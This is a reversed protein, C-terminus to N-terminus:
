RSRGGFQDPSQILRHRAHTRRTSHKRNIGLVILLHPYQALSQVPTPHPRKRPVLSWGTM